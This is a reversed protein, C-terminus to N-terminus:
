MRTTTPVGGRECFLSIAVKGKDCLYRFAEDLDSGGGMLAYGAEAATTVDQKNGTRKYKFGAANVTPTLVSIFVLFSLSGLLSHRARM